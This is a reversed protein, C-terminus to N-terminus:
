RKTIKVWKWNFLINGDAQLGSGVIRTGGDRKLSKAEQDLVSPDYEDDIVEADCGLSRIYDTFFQINYTNQFVWETPNGKEDFQNEACQRVITTPHDSLLTRIFCYQKTSDILNKVAPKCFPLHLIVNCCFVIDYPDNPYITQTADKVEFSAQTDHRFYDKAKNVVHAYADVGRYEIDQGLRRVGHLYHGVNCGVDLIRMGPQYVQKILKILQKTSEMEGLEGAARLSLSGEVDPQRGWVQWPEYSM